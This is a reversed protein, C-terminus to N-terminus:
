TNAAFTGIIGLAHDSLGDFVMLVSVNITKQKRPPVAIYLFVVLSTTAYGLANSRAGHMRGYRLNMRPKRGVTSTEYFWFM